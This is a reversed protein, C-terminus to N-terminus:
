AKPVTTSASEPQEPGRRAAKVSSRAFETLREAFNPVARIAERIAESAVLEHMPSGHTNSDVVRLPEEDLRSLASSLLKAELARDVERTERKYGEYARSISAKFAYDEALRFRQGIQKTAVWAFWVPAGVSMLLMFANMAVAIRDTDRLSLASVLDRAHESGWYAGGGLSVVLAFVWFYLSKGLSSSRESFAAALGISTSASYAAHCKVLAEKAEREVEKLNKSAIGAETRVGEIVGQARLIDREIGALQRRKEELTALDTPLKDAAEYADEIRTLTTDLAGTRPEIEALEAEVARLKTRLRRAEKSMDEAAPAPFAKDLIRRVAWLTNLMASVAQNANPWMNPVTNGRLFALRQRCDDVRQVQGPTLTEVEMSRVFSGLENTAEVLDRRNVGPFSWNGHANGFPDDNPLSAQLQSALADCEKALDELAKAGM